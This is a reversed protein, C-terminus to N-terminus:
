RVFVGPGKKIDDGTHGYCVTLIGVPDNYAYQRLGEAPIALAMAVALAISKRNENM